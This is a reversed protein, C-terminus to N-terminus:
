RDESDPEENQFADKYYDRDYAPVISNYLLVFEQNLNIDKHYHGFYWKDFSLNENVKQLFDTATDRETYGMLACISSPACHTVVYDVKFDHKKLNEMAHKMEDDSPLEEKWWSLHAIRYERGTKRYWYCAEYFEDDTKFNDRDLIGDRIDHSQAGGFVFIKKGLIEYIEGRLLHYINPRIQQAYGGMYPVIQFEGPDKEQWPNGAMFAKYQPTCLRDYCEHNGDAFLTTFSRNSMEDLNYDEEKCKNWIGFDGCIIMYDDRNMHKQMPFGSRTFRSFNGHTDGTFYIAM